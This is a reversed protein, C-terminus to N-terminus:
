VGYRNYKPDILAIAEPQYEVEAFAALKRITEEPKAVLDDYDISLLPGKFHKDLAETVQYTVVGFAHITELLSHAQQGIWSNVSRNFQRQVWVIRVDQDKACELFHPLM